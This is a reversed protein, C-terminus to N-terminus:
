VVVETKVGSHWGVTRVGCGSMRAFEETLQEQFIKRNEFTGALELLKEVAVARDSTVEVDYADPLDDVPCCCKVRLSYKVIM